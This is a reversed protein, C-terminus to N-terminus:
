ETNQWCFSFNDKLHIHCIRILVVINAAFSVLGWHLLPSGRSNPFVHSDLFFREIIPQHHLLAHKPKVYFCQRIPCSQSLLINCTALMTHTHFMIECFIQIDRFSGILMIALSIPLTYFSLLTALGGVFVLWTVGSLEARRRLSWWPPAAIFLPLM